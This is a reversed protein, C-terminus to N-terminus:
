RLNVIQIKKPNILFFYFNNQKDYLEFYFSKDRMSYVISQILFNEEVSSFEPMLFNKNKDFFLFIGEKKYKNKGYVRELTTSLNTHLKYCEKVKYKTYKLYDRTLIRCLAVEEKSHIKIKSLHVPKRYFVEANSEEISVIDNVCVLMLLIILTIKTPACHTTGRSISFVKPLKM